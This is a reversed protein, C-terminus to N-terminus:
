TLAFQSTPIHFSFHTFPPSFDQEVGLGLPRHRGQFVAGHLVPLLSWFPLLLVTGGLQWKRFGWETVTNTGPVRGLM